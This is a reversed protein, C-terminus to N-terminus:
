DTLIMMMMMMDKERKPFYPRANEKEWSRPTECLKQSRDLRKVWTRRTRERGNKAM